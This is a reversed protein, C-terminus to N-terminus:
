VKEECHSTVNRPFDSNLCWWGPRGVLRSERLMLKLNNRTQCAKEADRGLIIVQYDFIIGTSQWCITIM